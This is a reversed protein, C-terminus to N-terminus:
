VTASKHLNKILNRKKPQVPEPLAPEKVEEVFIKKTRPKRQKKISEDIM